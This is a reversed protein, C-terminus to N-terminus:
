STLAVSKEILQKPTRFKLTKRPRSNLQEAVEDLAEHTNRWVRRKLFTSAFLPTLIKMPVESGIVKRTVFYVPVSTTSTFEIHKALEMVRDWTLTQKFENPLEEFKTILVNNVSTADKDRLKLLITYSSKRDVLTAVHSNKSGPILYGDWHGM